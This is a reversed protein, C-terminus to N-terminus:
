LNIGIVDMNVGTLHVQPLKAIKANLLPLRFMGKRYALNQEDVFKGFKWFQVREWLTTRRTIVPPCYSDGMIAYLEPCEKVDLFQGDAPLFEAPVKDAALFTLIVYGICIHSLPSKKVCIIYRGQTVHQM